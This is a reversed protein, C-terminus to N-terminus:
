KKLTKKLKMKNRRLERSAQHHLIVPEKVHRMTDFITCYEEPLNYFDGDLVKELHRQDWVYPYKACEKEWREVIRRVKENNRLFVTGSLVEWDKVQRRKYLSRDLNHVAVDGDMEEFLVPYAKFEADIDVYVINRDPFKDLMQKLFTPKFSTNKFWDGKNDIAEVYYPVGYALVSDIFVEAYSEYFTDRTYYAVIIFDQNM